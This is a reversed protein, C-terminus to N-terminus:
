RSQADHKQRYINRNARRQERTLQHREQPTVVGDAKAVRKDHQIKAQQMQLQRRERRTLEGSRKGEQIREQQNIQRETVRPTATQAFIVSSFSMCILVASTFVLKRM